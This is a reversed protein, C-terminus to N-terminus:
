IWSCCPYCNKKKKRVNWRLPANVVRPGLLTGSFTSLMWPEIGLFTNRSTYVFRESVYPDSGVMQGANFVAFIIQSPEMEAMDGIESIFRHTHYSLKDKSMGSGQLFNVNTTTNQVTNENTTTDNKRSYFHVPGPPLMAVYLSGDVSSANVTPLKNDENEEPLLSVNEPRLIATGSCSRQKASSNHATTDIAEATDVGNNEWQSTKEITMNQCTSSQGVIELHPASFCFQSQQQIFQLKASSRLLLLVNGSDSMAELKARDGLSVDVVSIDGSSVHVNLMGNANVQIGRLNVNAYNGEVIFNSLKLGSVNQVFSLTSPELTTSHIEIIQTALTTNPSVLGAVQCKTFTPVIKEKSRRDYTLTCSTKSYGGGIETRYEFEQNVPLHENISFALTSDVFRVTTDYQSNSLVITKTQLNDNIMSVLPLSIILFFIAALIALRYMRRLGAKSYHFCFKVILKLCGPQNSHTEHSNMKMKKMCCNCCLATQQSQNEQIEDVGHVDGVSLAVVNNSSTGSGTKAHVDTSLPHMQSMFEASSSDRRELRRKPMVKTPGTKGASAPASAFDNIQQSKTEM